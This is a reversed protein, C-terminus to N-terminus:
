MPKLFAILPTNELIMVVRNIREVYLIDRVREDVPIIRVVESAKTFDDNFRIHHLSRRGPAPTNGMASVFTEKQIKLFDTQM